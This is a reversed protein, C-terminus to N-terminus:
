IYCVQRCREGGGKGTGCSYGSNELEEAIKVWLQHKVTKKDDFKPALQARLQLLLTTAQDEAKTPRGKSKWINSGNSHEVSFSGEVQLQQVTTVSEEEQEQQLMNTLYEDAKERDNLLMEATAVDVIVTHDEGKNNLILVIEEDM